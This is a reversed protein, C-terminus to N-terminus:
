GGGSLVAIFASLMRGVQFTEDRQRLFRERDLFGDDHAVILHNRPAGSSTACRWVGSVPACM